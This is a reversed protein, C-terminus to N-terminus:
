DLLYRIGAKQFPYFALGKPCPPDFDSSAAASAVLNERRKEEENHDLKAWWCVQWNGSQLDKTVSLGASKLEPSHERWVRWFTEDPEAKRLIRPGYKTQVERPPGWATLAEINM